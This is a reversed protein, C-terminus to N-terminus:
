KAAPKKRSRSLDGITALVVLAFITTSAKHFVPGPIGWIELNEFPTNLHTARVVVLPISILFVHVLLPYLTFSQWRNPWQVIRWLMYLGSNVFYAGAIMGALLRSEILKFVVAALVVAIVELLLFLAMENRRM